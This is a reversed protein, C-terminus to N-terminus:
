NYFAKSLGVGAYIACTGAVKGNATDELVMFYSEGGPGDINAGFAEISEAIRAELVDRNAPLTTLGKSASSALDVLRDLDSMRAPRVRMM